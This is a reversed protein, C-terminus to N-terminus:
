YYNPEHDYEEEYDDDDEPYDPDEQNEIALSYLDDEEDKSLEGDWEVGDLYINYNMDEEPPYCLEPPGSFRGPDYYYTGKVTLVIEEENRVVPFTFTFNSM